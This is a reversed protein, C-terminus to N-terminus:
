LSSASYYRMVLVETADANFLIGRRATYDHWWEGDEWHGVDVDLEFARDVTGLVDDVYDHMDATEDPFDGAWHELYDDFAGLKEANAIVASACGAASTKPTPLKSCWRKLSYNGGKNTKFYLSELTGKVRTAKSTSSPASISFRRVAPASGTLEDMTDQISSPVSEETLTVGGSITGEIASEEDPVDASACGVCLVAIIIERM